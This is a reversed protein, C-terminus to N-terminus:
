DDALPGYVRLAHLALAVGWAVLFWVPWFYSSDADAQSWVFILFLNVLVYTALHLVFDRQRKTRRRPASPAPPTLRPLERLVRDLDARTRAALAEATRESFEDVTLRGLSCHEQLMAVVHQREADSVRLAPQSRGEEVEGPM